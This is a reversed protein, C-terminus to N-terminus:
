RTASCSRCLLRFAFCEGQISFVVTNPLPERAFPSGPLPRGIARVIQVDGPAITPSRSILIPGELFMPEPKDFTKICAFIQGNRLFNHVDAVGVLTWGCPIPIRARQKLERLVHNIAFEMLQNIFIENPPSVDLKDLGLMLSPLRFSAGLGHTELLKAMTAFSHTSEQAEYVADDQYGQFTEYPVGLGELIMILPRNLFYKGPKDFAQAIEIERSEPAEFKIMSPRLCIARGSLTYDVSLMGKSGMFRVQFACPHAKNRGPRRRAARLKRSIDEAMERSITGVGDTFCSGNAEVDPIPFIEEVQVSVSADTATFAQSIRAGYRAPCRILTPDFELGAFTGLGEIITCANVDVYGEPTRHKFPSVFWVAHEKLASQSYALFQFQRGAIVLGNHLIHGVRRRVFAAGDVERDFRYQLRVEDVFSVRMFREHHDPYSRIVRNSREPYPGELFVTTPTVIAHLCDLVNESLKAAPSRCQTEFERCCRDFCRDVAKSSDQYDEVVIEKVACAFHRLLGSIYEEGKQHVLETIKPKLALMETFDVVMIKVLSEVQFAVTWPLELLWSQLQVQVGEAFLGRRQAVVDDDKPAQMRALSCHSRFQRLDLTTVCVLRMALSTYPVMREHESDLGSLRQRKPQNDDTAAVGSQAPDLEFTPPQLLSFYIVPQRALSVSTSCFSISAFRIGIFHVGSPDGVIKIRLEKKEPDFIVECGGLCSKEWEISFVNDRCEWGFQIFRVSVHHSRLQSAREEEEEVARPDLYPLRLIAEVVDARLPHRSFQFTVIAGRIRLGTRGVQGLFQTGVATTPLTLAGQGSHNRGGKRDRYLRVDFNLPLSSLHSYQPGHVVEAIAYRVKPLYAISRHHVYCSRVAHSTTDYSIGRMYIEM